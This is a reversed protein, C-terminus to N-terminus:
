IMRERTTAASRCISVFHEVSGPRSAFHTHVYSALVRGRQFGETVAKETRRRKMRYAASWQGDETPDNLLDSYHFEHGRLTWGNAGLLSERTLTVEVYGLSKLRELMRTWSPLLGVLPFREGNRSEIGQSLYMLGGCEAYVPKGENAFRRISDLMTKNESLAASHEEPYGGGIYLSDLAEPVTPDNIPSFEVLESGTGTLAELNDPYYFHFAADRAIGLRVPRGVPKIEEKPPAFSLNPASSAIRLVDEVSGHNELAAALLDLVNRSLNGTSATVLGLHRRPLEAFAGRPIAAVLRPLGFANLSEDLWAAHRESGCQNAIVGAIKLQPEFTSYGKVLAAVSRSLGHANIVLIVPCDLWTAIEATSGEPHVPDSGDFLGMVGEIVAIDATGTRTVFLREVYGRGTMWGDLNYCPRGAALSLYTPDLYDPGVKFPQVRLGRRKLACVLALAVSTKGVGSNTGAIIVRPCAITM